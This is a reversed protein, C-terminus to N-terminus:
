TWTQILVGTTAGAIISGVLALDDYGALQIAMAAGGGVVAVAISVRDEVLLTLLSVFVALFAFDLGFAKLDPIAGSGVFGIITGGTWIFM